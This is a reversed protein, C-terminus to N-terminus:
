PQTEKAIKLKPAINGTQMSEVVTGPQYSRIYSSINMREFRYSNIMDRFLFADGQNVFARLTHFRPYPDNPMQAYAQVHYRTGIINVSVRM